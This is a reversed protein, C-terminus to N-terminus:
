YVWPLTDIAEDKEPMVMRKDYKLKFEKNTETNLLTKNKKVNRIIM